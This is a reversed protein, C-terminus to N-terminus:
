VGGVNLYKAGLQDPCRQLAQVDPLFGPGSGLRFIGLACTARRIVHHDMPVSGPLSAVPLTLVDLQLESSEGTVTNWGSGGGNEGV